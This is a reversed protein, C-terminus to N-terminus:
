GSKFGIARRAPREAEQRLAKIERYVEQLTTDHRMLKREVEALRRAFVGREALMNRMKVFARIVFLSMEVARDSNLVSSAELDGHETFAFPLVSSHKLKAFRDCNAVLEVTEERTLRFAFDAPFRRPNRKVQENLRRTPVGYVEALDRDVMVQEGRIELIRDELSRTVMFRLDTMTGRVVM